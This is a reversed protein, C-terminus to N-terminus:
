KGEQKLENEFDVGNVYYSDTEFLHDNKIKDIFVEQIRKIVENDSYYEVHELEIKRGIEKNKDSAEVEKGKSKGGCLIVTLMAYAYQELIDAEIGLGEAFAHIQQYDTPFPNNRIFDVLKNVINPDTLQSISDEQFIRKYKKM